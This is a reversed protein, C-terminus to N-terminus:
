PVAFVDFHTPAVVVVRAVHDIVQDRFWTSNGTAEVALEDNPQPM